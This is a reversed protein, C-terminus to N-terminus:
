IEGTNLKDPMVVSRLEGSCVPNAIYKYQKIRQNGYFGLAQIAHAASPM